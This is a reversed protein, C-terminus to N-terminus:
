GGCCCYCCYCSLSSRLVRQPVQLSGAPGWRGTRLEVSSSRSHPRRGVLIRGALRMLLNAYACKNAISDHFYFNPTGFGEYCTPHRVPCRVEAYGHTYTTPPPAAAAATAASRALAWWAATSPTTGSAAAAHLNLLDPAPVPGTWAADAQQYSSCAVEAAAANPVPASAAASHNDSDAAYLRQHRQHAAAESAALARYAAAPAASTGHVAVVECISYVYCVLFSISIYIDIPM